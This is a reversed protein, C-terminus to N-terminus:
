SAKDETVDTTLDNITKMLQELRSTVVVSNSRAEHEASFAEFEAILAPGYHKAARDLAELLQAAPEPNEYTKDVVVHATRRYFEMVAPVITVIQADALGIYSDVVSKVRQAKYKTVANRAFSIISAISM